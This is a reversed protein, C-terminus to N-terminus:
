HEGHGLVEIFFTIDGTEFNEERGVYFRGGEIMQLTEERTITVRGGLKLLLAGVLNALANDTIVPTTM